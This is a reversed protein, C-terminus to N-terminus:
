PRQLGDVVDDRHERSAYIGVLPDNAAIVVVAPDEARRVWKGALDCQHALGLRHPLEIALAPPRRARNDVRAPVALLGPEQARGFPCLCMRGLELALSEDVDVAVDVAAAEEFRLAAVFELM